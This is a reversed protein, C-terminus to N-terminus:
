FTHFLLKAHRKFRVVRNCNEEGDLLSTVCCDGHVRHSLSVPSLSFFNDSRCYLVTCDSRFRHNSSFFTDFADFFITRWGEANNSYAFDITILKTTKDCLELWREILDIYNPIQNDGYIMIRIIIKVSKDIQNITRTWTTFNEMAEPKPAIEDTGVTHPNLDAYLVCNKNVHEVIYNLRNIFVRNHPTDEKPILFENLSGL